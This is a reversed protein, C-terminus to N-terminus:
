SNEMRIKLSHVDCGPLWYCDLFLRIGAVSELVSSARLFYLRIKQNQRETGRMVKKDEPSGRKTLFSEIEHLYARMHWVLMHWTIQGKLATYLIM